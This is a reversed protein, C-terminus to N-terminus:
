DGVLITREIESAIKRVISTETSAFYLEKFRKFALSVDNLDNIIVIIDAEKLTSNPLM